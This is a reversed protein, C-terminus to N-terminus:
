RFWIVRPEHLEALQQLIADRYARTQGGALCQELRARERALYVAALELAKGEPEVADQRFIYLGTYFRFDQDLHRTYLRRGLTGNEHVLHVQRAGWAGVTFRQVAATGKRDWDIILYVPTGKAIKEIM